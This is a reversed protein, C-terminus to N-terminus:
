LLRQAMTDAYQEDERHAYGEDQDFSYGSRIAGSPLSEATSYGSQMVPLAIGDQEEAAKGSSQAKNQVKVLVWPSLFRYNAASM